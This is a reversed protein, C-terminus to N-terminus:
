QTEPVHTEKSITNRDARRDDWTQTEPTRTESPAENKKASKKGEVAHAFRNTSGLKSCFVNLKM